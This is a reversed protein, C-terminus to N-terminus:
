SVKKRPGWPFESEPITPYQDIRQHIDEPLPEHLWKSGYEYGCLLCPKCLLGKPHEVPKVWGAAKTETKTLEPHALSGASAVIELKESVDWDRRQHECGARMDNLHWQDWLAKLDAVLAADWGKGYLYVSDLASACQGFSGKCDGNKMPGVVGVVSLREGDDKESVEVEVYVWGGDRSKGPRLIEYRKSM